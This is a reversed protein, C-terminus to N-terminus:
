LVEYRYGIHDKLVTHYDGNEDDYGYNFINMQKTKGVIKREFMKNTLFDQYELM